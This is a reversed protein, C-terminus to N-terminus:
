AKTEPKPLHNRTVRVMLWENYFSDKAIADRLIIEKAEMYSAEGKTRCLHLVERKFHDEGLLSVEEKLVKNSGYYTMWDSSVLKKQRKGKVKRSKSFRFLKKGVYQRGTKRNTILYVFAVFGEPIETLPENNYTWM